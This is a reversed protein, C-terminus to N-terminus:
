LDLFAYIAVENSQRFFGSNRQHSCVVAVVQMVGISVSLLNQEADLGALGHAVLMSHLKLGILEIELRGFFHHAYEALNWLRQASRHVNRIAAIHLDLSDRIRKRFEL